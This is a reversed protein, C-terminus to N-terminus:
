GRKLGLEVIVERALQRALYRKFGDVLESRRDTDVPGSSAAPVIALDMKDTVTPRSHLCRRKARGSHLWREYDAVSWQLSACIKLRIEDSDSPFQECWARVIAALEGLFKARTLKM